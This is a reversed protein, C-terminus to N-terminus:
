RTAPDIDIWQEVDELNPLTAVVRGGPTLIQYHGFDLARHDRRRSKWFVFGQRDLRRRASNERIKRAQDVTM